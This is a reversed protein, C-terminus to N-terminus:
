RPPILGKVTQDAAYDPLSSRMHFYAGAIVVVMVIALAFLARGALRAIFGLARV